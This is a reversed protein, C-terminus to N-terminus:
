RARDRGGGRGGSRQTLPFPTRANEIEPPLTVIRRRRRVCRLSREWHGTMWGGSVAHLGGGDRREFKAEDGGNQRLKGQFLNQGEGAVFAEPTDLRHAPRDSTGLALESADRM